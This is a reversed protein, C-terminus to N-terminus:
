FKRELWFKKLDEFSKGDREDKFRIQEHAQLSADMASIETNRLMIEVALLAREPLIFGGSRVPFPNELSPVYATKMLIEKVQLATLAPNIETMRMAINMAWPTAMSTGSAKEWGNAFNAGIFDTGPAAVDVSWPGYNSYDAIKHDNLKMRDLFATDLAAIAIKNKVPMAAPWLDNELNDINSKKNGAAAFILTQPNETALEYLIKRIKFAPSNPRYDSVFGISSNVFRINKKHIYNKAKEFQSPDALDGGFFTFKFGTINNMAVSSVYTGHSFPYMETHGGNWKFLETFNNSHDDFQHVISPHVHDLGIDIIVINELNKNKWINLRHKQEGPFPSSKKIEAEIDQRSILNYTGILENKSNYREMKEVVRSEPRSKAFTFVLREKINNKEDFLHRETPLAIIAGTSSAMDTFVDAWLKPNGLGKCRYEAYYNFDLEKKDNLSRGEALTNIKRQGETNETCYEIETIKNNEFVRELDTVIKGEGNLQGKSILLGDKNFEEQVYIKNNHALKYNKFRVNGDKDCIYTSLTGDLLPNENKEVAEPKCILFSNADKSLLPRIIQIGNLAQNQALTGIPLLTTFLISLTPTMFALKFPKFMMPKLM